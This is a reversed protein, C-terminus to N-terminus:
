RSKTAAPGLMRVLEIRIERVQNKYFYDPPAVAHRTLMHLEQEGLAASPRRRKGFNEKEFGPAFGGPCM